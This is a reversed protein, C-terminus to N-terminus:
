KPVIRVHHRWLVWGDADDFVANLFVIMGISLVVLMAHEGRVHGVTTAMLMTLILLATAASDGRRWDM